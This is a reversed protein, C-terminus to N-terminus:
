SKPELSFSKKEEVFMLLGKTEGDIFKRWFSVSSFVAFTPGKKAKVIYLLNPTNKMLQKKFEPDIKKDRQYM